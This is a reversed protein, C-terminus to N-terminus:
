RGRRAAGRAGQYRNDDYAPRSLDPTYFLTGPTANFYNGPYYDSTVWSRASVFFWIKDRQIPGGVGGGM